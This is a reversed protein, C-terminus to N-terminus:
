PCTVGPGTACITQTNTTFLTADRVTLRMERPGPEPAKYTLVIGEGASRDATLDYWEFTLSKEEPDVSASANLFINTDPMPAWEFEATPARNQNRLFVATQLNVETPDRDLNADVFLQTSVETIETPATANYTFIPRDGNVVHTTLVQSKTWGAGPCAGDGPIGPPLESTWTQIQRYLTTNPKDLCYRVRTTNQANLSGVPKAKGESQFVLEWDGPVDIANPLGPTPSALNRMDRAMLDLAARTEDQADNLQENAKVSREFSNLTTLTAGLVVIMLVSTLLVEVLTFGDEARLSATVRRV